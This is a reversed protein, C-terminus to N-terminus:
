ENSDELKILRGDIDMLRDDIVYMHYNVAEDSYSEAFDERELVLQVRYKANMGAGVLHETPRLASVFEEAAYRDDQVRSWLAEDREAILWLTSGLPTGAAEFRVDDMFLACRTHPGRDTIVFGPITPDYWYHKLNGDEIWACNLRNIQDFAADMWTIRGSLPVSLPPVTAAVIAGNLVTVAIQEPADFANQPTTCAVAELPKKIYARGNIMPAGDDIEADTYWLM